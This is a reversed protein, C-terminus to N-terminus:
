NGSHKESAEGREGLSGFRDDVAPDAVALDVVAGKGVQQGIAYFGAQQYIRALFEMEFVAIIEEKPQFLLAPMQQSHVHFSGAVVPTDFGPRDIDQGFLDVQIVGGPSNKELTQLIYLRAFM